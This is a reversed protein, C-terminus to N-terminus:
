PESEPLFQELVWVESATTGAVFAVTRGDPSVRPHGLNPLSLDLPEPEGGAAPVRWLAVESGPELSAPRTFLIWRGDRSWILRSADTRTLIERPPRGDTPVVIVDVERAAARRVLVAVEEGSPAVAVPGLPEDRAYLVRSGGNTLSRSLVRGVPGTGDQGFARYVIRSGDPLVEFEYPYEDPPLRLVVDSRGTQLDLRYLASRAARDQIMLLLSHGDLSWRVARPYTGTPLPLERTQGSAISRVVVSNRGVLGFPPKHVRYALRDGDPSWVPRTLHGTSPPSGLPRAPGTIDGTAPDFPALHVDRSGTAVTYFFRGDRAFGIPSARWFDPKVLVPEGSARGGTVPLLWAAPTGARDSAFLVHRGDPAWGLLADDAPHEVLAELRQGELDLLYIDRDSTTDSPAHDYVIFRGDPSFAMRAPGRWGLAKVVRVEGATSVLLIRATNDDGVADWALIWRGDPSWDEAQVWVVQEGGYVRRAAGGEAPVVRLEAEAPRDEPLWTYAIWEASRDVEAFMASGPHYPTPNDTLRRSAGTALDSVALDGTSWDTSALFRGDPAVSALGDVDGDAVVRRAVTRDPDVDREPVAAEAAAPGAGRHGPADRGCGCALLMLLTLALARLM